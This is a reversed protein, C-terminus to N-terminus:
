KKEKKEKFDVDEVDEKSLDLPEKKAKGGVDSEPKPSSLLNGLLKASL